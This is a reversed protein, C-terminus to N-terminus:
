SSNFSSMDLSAMSPSGLWKSALGIKKEEIGVNFTKDLGM